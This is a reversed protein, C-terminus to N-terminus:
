YKIPYWLIGVIGGYDKITPHDTVITENNVLNNFLEPSVILTKICGISLFELVEKEGYVALGDDLEIHNLWEKVIESHESDSYETTCYAGIEYVTRDTISGCTITPKILPSLRYDFCSNKAVYDKSEAPGAIVISRIKQYFNERLYVENMKEVIKKYFANNKEVRLRGIRAQSQGGNNQRKQACQTITGLLKVNGPASYTYVRSEEGEVLVIGFIDNVKTMEFLPDLYFKNSCIYLSKLVPFEPEIVECVKGLTLKPFTIGTTGPFTTGTTETVTGFSTSPTDFMISLPDLL